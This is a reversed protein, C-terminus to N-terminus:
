MNWDIRMDLKMAFQRRAEHLEPLILVWRRNQTSLERKRIVELWRRLGKGVARPSTNEYKYHGGKQDCYWGFNRSIEEASWKRKWNEEDQLKEFLWADLGTLAELKVGLAATNPVKRINFESLDIRQLLM